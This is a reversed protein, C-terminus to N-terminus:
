KVQYQCFIMISQVLEKDNTYYISKNKM